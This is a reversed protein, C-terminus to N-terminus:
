RMPSAMSSAARPRLRGTVVRSTRSAGARNGPRRGASYGAAMVFAGDIDRTAPQRDNVVSAPWRDHEHVRPDGIQACPVRDHRWEHRGSVADNAVVLAPESRRRRLIDLERRACVQEGHHVRQPDAPGREDAVGAAAHDREIRGDFEGLPHHGDDPDAGSDTAEIASRRGGLGLDELRVIANIGRVGEVGIRQGVELDTDPEVSRTLRRIANRRARALHEPAM